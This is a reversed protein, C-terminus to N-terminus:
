KSNISRKLIMKLSQFTSEDMEQTPQNPNVQKLLLAMTNNLKRLNRYWVGSTYLYLPYKNTSIIYKTDFWKGTLNGTKFEQQISSSIGTKKNVTRLSNM